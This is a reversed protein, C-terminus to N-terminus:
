LFGANGETDDASLSDIGIHLRDDTEIQVQHDRDVLKRLDLGEECVDEGHSAERV